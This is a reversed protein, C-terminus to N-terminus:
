SALLNGSPNRLYNSLLNAKDVDAASIRRYSLETLHRSTGDEQVQVIHSDLVPHLPPTAFFVVGGAAAAFAFSNGENTLLPTVANTAINLRYLVGKFHFIFESSTEAVFDAFGYRVKVSTVQGDAPDFRQLGQTLENIYLNGDPAVEVWVPEFNLGDVIISVEGSPDVAVVRTNGAVYVTGDTGIDIDSVVPFPLDTALTSLSGGPSLRYLNNDKGGAAYVNGAADAALVHIPEPTAGLRRHEGTYPPDIAMIERNSRSYIVGGDPLVAVAWSNIAWPDNTKGSVLTRVGSGSLLSIRGLNMDGIAIDGNPLLAMQSPLGFATSLVPQVEYGDGYICSRVEESMIPPGPTDTPSSTATPWLTATPNATPTATPAAMRTAEVAAAVTADIDPTPTPDDTSCAVVAALMVAVFMTKM